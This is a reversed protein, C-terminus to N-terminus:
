GVKISNLMKLVDDISRCEQLKNNFMNSEKIITEQLEESLDRVDPNNLGGRVPDVGSPKQPTKIPSNYILDIIDDIGEIPLKTGPKGPIPISGIVVPSVPTTIDIIKNIQDAVTPNNVPNIPNVTPDLVLGPIIVNPNKSINNIINVVGPKKITPVDFGNKVLEDLLRHRTPINYVQSNFVPLKVEIPKYYNTSPISVPNKTWTALPVNSTTASTDSDESNKEAEEKIIQDITSAILAPMTHAEAFEKLNCGLLTLKPKGAKLPKDYVLVATGDENLKVETDLFDAVIEALDSNSLPEDPLANIAEAIEKDTISKLDRIVGGDKCIVNKLSKRLLLNLLSSQFNIVTNLKDIYELLESFDSGTRAGECEFYNIVGLVSQLHANIEDQARTVVQSVKGFTKSINQEARKNEAELKKAYDRFPDQKRQYEALKNNYEEITIEKKSLKDSLNDQYTSISKYKPFLATRISDDMPSNYINEKTPAAAAIEELMSIICPVGTQSMDVTLSVNAVVSAILKGILAKIFIGLSIRPLKNLAMIAAVGQLLFAIFRLIDPICAREFVFGVHCMNLKELKVGKFVNNFIELKFNLKNYLFKFDHKFVIKPLKLQCNFCKQKLADITADVGPPNPTKYWPSNPDYETDFSFRDKNWEGLELPYFTDILNELANVTDDLDHYFGLVLKIHCDNQDLAETFFNMITQAYALVERESSNSNSSLNNIIM